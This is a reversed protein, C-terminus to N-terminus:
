HTFKMKEAETLEENKLRERREASATKQRKVARVSEKPPTPMVQKRKEPIIRREDASTPNCLKCPVRGSRQVGEFTVTGAISKAALIVSCSPKHYIEFDPSYVYNFGARKIIDQNYESRSQRMDRRCCECALYKKRIATVLTPYAILQKGCAEVKECSKHHIINLEKDYRYQMESSDPYDPHVKDALLEWILEQPFKIHEMLKRIVSADNYAYHMLRPKTDIGCAQAIQYADGNAKLRGRLFEHVYSAMRVSAHKDEAKLIASVRNRFFVDSKKDWWLIIDSDSLWKEFESLVVFASKAKIYTDANGGTYSAHGWRHAGNGRPRVFRKFFEVENWHEDVKIASLLTMANARDIEQLWEIDALVFM